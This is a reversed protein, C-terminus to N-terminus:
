APGVDIPFAVPEDDSRWLCPMVFALGFPDNRQESLESRVKFLRELYSGLSGDVNDDRGPVGALVETRPQNPDDPPSM